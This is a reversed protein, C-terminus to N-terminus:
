TRIKGVRRDSGAERISHPGTLWPGIIPYGFRMAVSMVLCDVIFGGLAKDINAEFKFTLFLTATTFAERIILPAPRTMFYKAVWGMMFGILVMPVLMLPFGFDVYAQTVFGVSVSTGEPIRTGILETTIRSDDLFAKDPFLIRPTLTHEVAAGYFNYSDPLLGVQDRKLVRAFFDIYAIRKLLVRSADGYNISTDGIFRQAMWGIREEIATNFVKTRYEDKVATWVLSAWVVAIAITGAFIWKSVNLPRRVAALAILMVIFAEKYGSFYGTLGIVMEVLSVLILWKYGRDSEFCKAALVYICVYKLPILAYVPQMLDPISQAVYTLIQVLALSGFYCAVIRHMNFADSENRNVSGSGVGILSHSTWGGLRTSGLRMGLALALIASLGWLIAQVHNASDFVVWGELDHVLVDAVIQLWAFALLWVLVPCAQKGGLLWVTAALTLLCVLWMALNVSALPGALLLAAAIAIKWPSIFNSM